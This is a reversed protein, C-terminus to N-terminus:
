RTGTRVASPSVGFRARFRGAFEGLHVFGCALAVDTVTPGGPGGARLMAHARDLRAERLWQGPTRDLERRFGLQLSRLSVGCHDAVTGMSIPEALHDRLYDMARRIRASPAAAGDLCRDRPQGLVLAEVVLRELGGLLRNRVVPDTVAAAAVIGEIASHLVNAPVPLALALDPRAPGGVEHLVAAIAEVRFRDFRLVVQDYSADIDFRFERYPSVVAGAGPAPIVTEAGYRFRATGATPLSVLFDQEISAAPLVTVDTGYHLRNVSMPGADLHRLRTSIRRPRGRLRLDHPRLAATCAAVVQDPDCVPPLMQPADDLLHRNM